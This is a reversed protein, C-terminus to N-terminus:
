RRPRGAPLRGEERAVVYSRIAAVQESRLQDQFGPMGKGPRGVAIISDFAAESVAGRALSGRLDPAMVGAVADDGHCRACHVMYQRWGEYEMESARGPEMGQEQAVLPQALM